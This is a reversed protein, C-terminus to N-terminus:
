PNYVMPLTGSILVKSEEVALGVRENGILLIISFAAIVLLTSVISCGLGWSILQAVLSLHRNLYGDGNEENPDYCKEWFWWLLFAVLPALVALILM